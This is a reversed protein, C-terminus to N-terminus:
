TGYHKFSLNTNRVGSTSDGTFSFRSEDTFLVITNVGTRINKAILAIREKKQSSLSVYVWSNRDYFGKKNLRSYVTQRPVATGTAFALESSLRRTTSKRNPRATIALYRDESATRM